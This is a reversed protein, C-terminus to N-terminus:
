VPWAGHGNHAPIYFAARLKKKTMRSHLIFPPFYDPFLTLLLPIHRTPPDATKHCKPGKRWPSTAAFIREKQGCQLKEAMHYPTFSHQRQVTDNCRDNNYVSSLFGERTPSAAHYTSSPTVCSTVMPTTKTVLASWHREKFYYDAYAGSFCKDKTSM